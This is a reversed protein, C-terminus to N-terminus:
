PVYYVGKIKDLWNSLIRVKKKQKTESKLHDNVRTLHGLVTENGTHKKLLNRYIHFAAEFHERKEHKLGKTLLGEDEGPLSSPVADEQAPPLTAAQVLEDFESLLAEESPTDQLAKEFELDIPDPAEPEEITTPIEELEPEDLSVPEGLDEELPETEQAELPVVEGPPDPLPEPTPLPPPESPPNLPDTELHAKKLIEIEEAVAENNPEQIALAEYYFLAEDFREGEKCITALGTLAHPNDPTKALVQRFNQEAEARLGLQLRCRGLCVLAPVYDPHHAIGAQCVALAREFAGGKRFEEALRFFVRSTPDQKLQQELSSILYENM